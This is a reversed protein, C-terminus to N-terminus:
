ASGQNCNQCVQVRRRAREEMCEGQTDRMESRGRVEKCSKCVQMGKRAREGKCDNSGEKSNKEQWKKTAVSSGEKLEGGQSRRPDKMKEGRVYVKKCMYMRRRGREETRKEPVSANAKRNQGKSNTNWEMGNRVKRGQKCEEGQVGIVSPCVCGKRQEGIYIASL